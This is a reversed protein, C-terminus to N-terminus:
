KEGQVEKRTTSGASPSCSTDPHTLDLGNNAGPQQWKERLFRNEIFIVLVILLTMWYLTTESTPEFGIKVRLDELMSMIGYCFILYFFFGKISNQGLLKKMSELFTAEGDAKKPMTERKLMIMGPLVMFIGVYWEKPGEANVLLAIGMVILFVSM